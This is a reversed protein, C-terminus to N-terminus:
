ELVRKISVMDETERVDSAQPETTTSVVSQVDTMGEDEDVVFLPEESMTVSIISIDDDFTASVDGSSASADM